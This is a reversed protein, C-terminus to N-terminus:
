KLIPMKSKTSVGLLYGRTILSSIVNTASLFSTSWLDYKNSFQKKKIELLVKIEEIALYSERLM